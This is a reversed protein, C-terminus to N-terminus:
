LIHDGGYLGSMYPAHSDDRHCALVTAGDGFRERRAIDFNSNRRTASSANLLHV